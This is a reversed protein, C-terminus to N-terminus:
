GGGSSLIKSRLFSAFDDDGVEKAEEEPEGEEVSAGAALLAEALQRKVEFDLEVDRALWVLPPQDEDDDTYTYADPDLGTALLATVLEVDGMVCANHLQPYMLSRGREHLGEPLAKVADLMEDFRERFAENGGYLDDFGMTAAIDAHM